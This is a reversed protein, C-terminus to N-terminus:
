QRPCPPDCPDRTDERAAVAPLHTSFRQGSKGRPCLKLDMPTCRNMVVQLDRWMM